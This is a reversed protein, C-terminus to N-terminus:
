RRADDGEWVLAGSPYGRLRRTAGGPLSLELVFPTLEGSALCALQPRAPPLADLVLSRGDVQLALTTGEDLRRPRLAEAPSDAVPEFRGARFHGFAFGSRSVAIGVDHGSALARECALRLLAEVRAAANDGRRTGLDPFALTVAGILAALIVVVVLLEILTFGPAPFRSGHGPFRARHESM